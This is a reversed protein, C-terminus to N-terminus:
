HMLVSFTGLRPQVLRDFDAFGMLITESHTGANFLIHPHDKLAADVWVDLKYLNGLPPMAGLECDPFLGKFEEESALRVSGAAMLEGLRQLDVRHNGPVVAMTLSDDAVIMVVKALHKGSVHQAHAIGQATYALSHTCHQYCIHQSDLFESIHRPISM